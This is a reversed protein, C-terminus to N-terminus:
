RNMPKTQGSKSRTVSQNIQLHKSSKGQAEAKQVAAKLAAPIESKTEQEVGKAVGDGIKKGTKQGEGEAKKLQKTVYGPIKKSGDDVGKALEEGAKKGEREAADAGKKLAAALAEGAGKSGKQLGENLSKGAEEGSQAAAAEFKTLGSQDISIEGQLQFDSM